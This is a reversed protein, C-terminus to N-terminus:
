NLLMRMAGYIGADNGLTALGLKGKNNSIPTFHDYDKQIMDILFQGAKRNKAIDEAEFKMYYVTESLQRKELIKNM